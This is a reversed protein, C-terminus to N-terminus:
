VVKLMVQAKMFEHVSKYRWQYAIGVFAATFHLVFSRLGSCKLVFNKLFYISLRCILWSSEMLMPLDCQIWKFCCVSCTSTSTFLPFAVLGIKPIEENGKSTKPTGLGQMEVVKRRKRWLWSNSESLRENDDEPERMLFAESRYLAPWM